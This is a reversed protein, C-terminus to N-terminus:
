DGEITVIYDKNTVATNKPVSVIISSGSARVFSDAGEISLSTITAELNTVM